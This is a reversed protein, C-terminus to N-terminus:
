VLVTQVSCDEGTYGAFCTCLGTQSDCNGRNSCEANESTGKVTEEVECVTDVIKKATCKADGWDAKAIATVSRDFVLTNDAISVIKYYGSITNSGDSCSIWIRDGAVFNEFGNEDFPTDTETVIHPGAVSTSSQKTEFKQIASADSIAVGLENTWDGKIGGTKHGVSDADFDHIQYLKLESSGLNAPANQASGGGKLNAATGSKGPVVLTATNWTISGSAVTDPAATSGGKDSAAIIEVNGGGQAATRFNSMGTGTVDSTSSSPNNGLSATVKYRFLGKIARKRPQCGDSDCAAARCKLAHQDGSNAADSFTIKFTNYDRGITEDVTISPVVQGPLEQLMRKVGLEGTDSNVLTIKIDRDTDETEDAALGPSLTMACATEGM